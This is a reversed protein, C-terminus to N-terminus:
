QAAGPAAGVYGNVRWPSPNACMELGAPLLINRPFGEGAFSPLTARRLRTPLPTPCESYEIRISRLSRGVGWGDNRRFSVKGVEHLLRAADRRTRGSIHAQRVAEQLLRLM